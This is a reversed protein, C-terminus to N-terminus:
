NYTQDGRSGELPESIQMKTLTDLGKSMIQCARLKSRLQSSEPTPLLSQYMCVADELIDIEDLTFELKFVLAKGEGPCYQPTNVM